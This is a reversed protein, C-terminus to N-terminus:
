SCSLEAFIECVHEAKCPIILASLARLLRCTLLLLLLGREQWTRGILGRATNAPMLDNRTPRQVTTSPTTAASTVLATQGTRGPMILLWM